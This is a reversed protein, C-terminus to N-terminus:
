AVVSECPYFRIGGAVEIRPAVTSDAIVIDLQDSVAGSADFVFGSGVDFKAPLYASLFDKIINERARGQEGAHPVLRESLESSMRKASSAIAQALSFTRM